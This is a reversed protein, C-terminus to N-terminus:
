RKQGIIALILVLLLYKWMVLYHHFLQYYYVYKFTPPCLFDSLLADRGLHKVTDRKQSMLPCTWVQAGVSSGREFSGKREM